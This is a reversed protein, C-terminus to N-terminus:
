AGEGGVVREFLELHADVCAEITYGSAKGRLFTGYSSREASSMGRCRRIAGALSPASGPDALFEPYDRALFEISAGAGWTSVIPCGCAVAENVVLGWCELRSPLVFLGARLYEEMLQSPELFATVRVEDLGLSRAARKIRDSRSGTGVIHVSLDGSLEALADLAVDLGKYPLYRGVLLVLREDREERRSSLRVVDAGTFPSFPYSGVVIGRGLERRLSPASTLGAVLYGRAGELVRRRVLGKPGPLEFLPGDSNIVYAIRRRRMYEIAAIQRVTNYCGVVVLSWGKDITRLMTPSLPCAEGRPLYVEEYSHAHVSEFWSADRNKDGRKEFLVTLSCRQGLQEFFEDRYPNHINTLYLVKMLEYWDHRSGM